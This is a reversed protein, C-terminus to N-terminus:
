ADTYETIFQNYQLRSQFQNWDRARPFCNEKLKEIGAVTLDMLLAQFRGSRFWRAHRAARQQPALVSEVGSIVKDFEIVPGTPMRFGSDVARHLHFHSHEGLDGDGMADMHFDYRFYGIQEEAKRSNPYFCYSYKEVYGITQDDGDKIAIEHAVPKLSNPVPGVKCDFLITVLSDDPFLVGTLPMTRRDSEWNERVM